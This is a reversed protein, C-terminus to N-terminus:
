PAPRWGAARAEAVLQDPAAAPLPIIAQLRVTDLALSPLASDPAPRWDWPCGAASLLADMAVLGPQALNLVPPLAGADLLALLTRALTLPGIYHRQPASGDAFRDLAVRGRAAALLLDDAGPVNAIRLCTVGPEGAVAAEMALKAAGYPNAPHAPGGEPHPGPARGYVSSSSCLLVPGLGTRRALALAALAVRRNADLAAPDGKTLGALVIVGRAQPVMAPVPTQMDWVLDGGHRGHWVPAAVAPWHGDQWLSQFARGIRGSAGLILPGSAADRTM